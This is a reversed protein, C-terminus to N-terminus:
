AMQMYVVLEACVSSLNSLAEFRTSMSTLGTDVYGYLQSLMEKSFVETLNLSSQMYSDLEGRSTRVIKVVSSRTEQMADAVEGYMQFGLYLGCGSTAALLSLILGIAVIPHLTSLVMRLLIDHCWRVIYYVAHWIAGPVRAIKSPLHLLLTDVFTAVQQLLSWAAVVFAITQGVIDPGHLRPLLYVFFQATKFILLYGTGLALCM